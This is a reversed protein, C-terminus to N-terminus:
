QYTSMSTISTEFSLIIILWTMTVREAIHYCMNLAANGIQSASFMLRQLIFLRRSTTRCPTGNIHCGFSTTTVFAFLWRCAWICENRLKANLINKGIISDCQTGHLSCITLHTHTHSWLEGIQRFQSTQGKLIYGFIAYNANYPKTNSKIRFICAVHSGSFDQWFLGVSVICALLVCRLHMTKSNSNSIKPHCLFAKIPIKNNNNNNYFCTIRFLFLQCRCAAMMVM